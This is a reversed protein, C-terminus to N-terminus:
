RCQGHDGQAGRRRGPRVARDRFARGPSPGASAAAPAPDRGPSPRGPCLRPQCLADVGDGCRSARRTTTAALSTATGLHDDVYLPEETAIADATLQTQLSLLRHEARHYGGLTILVLVATIVLGLALVMLSLVHPHGTGGPPSAAIRREARKPVAM